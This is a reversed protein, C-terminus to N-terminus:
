KWFEGKYDVKEKEWAYQCYAEWWSVRVAYLLKNARRERDYMNKRKRKATTDVAGVAASLRELQGQTKNEAIYMGESSRYVLGLNILTYKKPGGPKDKSLAKRVSGYNLKGVRAIEAASSLPGAQLVEWVRAAVIGLRSFVDKEIDKQSTGFM